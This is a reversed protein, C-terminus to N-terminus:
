QEAMASGEINIFPVVVHDIQQIPGSRVAM